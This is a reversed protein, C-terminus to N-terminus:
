RSLKGETLKWELSGAYQTSYMSIESLKLVTSHALTCETFQSWQTRKKAQLKQTSHIYVLTMNGFVKKSVWKM